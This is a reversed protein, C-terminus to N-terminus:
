EHIKIIQKLQKKARNILTAVTGTPKKLIDSIEKYDKEEQYRLELVEKYKFDLKSLAKKVRERNFVKDTERILDFDSALNKLFEDVEDFVVSQPRAQRRRFNSIVENHCIRYVWSSFKLKQDFNNLNKYIKIFVEQLLDEIDEPSLGSIRRIYRALKAQYRDILYSFNHQGELSLAVLEEDTKDEHNKTM